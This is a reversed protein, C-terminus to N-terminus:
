SRKCSPRRVNGLFRVRGLGQLLELAESRKRRLDDAQDLIAAIRRQEDLPPLPIPLEELFLRPVRRQGASGTMREEGVRRISDQRLFHVLYRNDLAAADTRIVHFETSGFGHERDLEAVAIKNNEFCPTIKAVLVDGTQMYNYGPKLDAARLHGAVQMTGLESVAAMPVFAVEDNPALEPAARNFTALESLPVEALAPSSINM